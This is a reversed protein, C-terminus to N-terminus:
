TTLRLAFTAPFHIQTLWASMGLEALALVIVLLFAGGVFMGFAQAPPPDLTLPIGCYLLVISGLVGLVIWAWPNLVPVFDCIRCLYWPILSYAVTTFSQRFTARCTFSDAVLQILFTAALIAALILAFKGAQAQLLLSTPPPPPPATLGSSQPRTTFAITQAVLGLAALPVIQFFLIALISQPKQLIATWTPRPNLLLRFPTM